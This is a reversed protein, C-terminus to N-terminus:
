LCVQMAVATCIQIHVQRVLLLPLYNDTRLATIVAHRGRSRQLCDEGTCCRPSPDAEVRRGACPTVPLMM